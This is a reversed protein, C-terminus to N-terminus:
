VLATEVISCLYLKVALAVPLLNVAMNSSNWCSDDRSRDLLINLCAERAIDDCLNVLLTVAVVDLQRVVDIQLEVILSGEDAHVFMGKKM